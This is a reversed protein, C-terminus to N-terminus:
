PSILFEPHKMCRYGGAILRPLPFDVMEDMIEEYFRGNTDM